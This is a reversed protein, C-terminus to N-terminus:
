KSSDISGGELLKQILSYDSPAKLNSQPISRVEGALRSSVSADRVHSVFDSGSREIVLLSINQKSEYEIPVILRGRNALQSLLEQPLHPSSARVVIADFPAKEKWGQWGDGVLIEVKDFGLQLLRQKALDASEQLIEVSYVKAGLSSFYAAEYGSGTGVELVKSGPSIRGARAMSNASEQAKARQEQVGIFNEPYFVEIDPGANSESKQVQDQAVLDSAPPNISSCGWFSLVFGALLSWKILCDRYIKSEM